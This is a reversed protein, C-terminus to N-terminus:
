LYKRNNEEQTPTRNAINSMGLYNLTHEGVFSNYATGDVDIVVVKDMFEILPNNQFSGNFPRVPYQINHYIRYAATRVKTSDDTRDQALPNELELINDTSYPAYQASGGASNSPIPYKIKVGTYQIDNYEVTPEVQYKDLVAYSNNGTYNLCDDFLGCTTSSLVSEDFEGGDRTSPNDYNFELANTFPRDSLKHPVVDLRGIRWYDSYLEGSIVINGGALQAIYGFADRLTTTIKSDPVIADLAMNSNPFKDTDLHTAYFHTASTIGLKPALVNDCLFVFYDWLTPYLSTGSSSPDTVIQFPYDMVSVYDYATIVISYATRKVDSIIYRGEYIRTPTASTGNLYYASYLEIYANSAYLDYGDEYFKDIRNHISLKIQKSVVNGIPFNYGGNVTYSNNDVTFDNPSLYVSYRSHDPREWIVWANTYATVEGNEIRKRLSDSVEKM